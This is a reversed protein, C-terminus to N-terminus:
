KAPRRVPGGGPGGGPGSGPGEQIVMDRPGFGGRQDDGSPLPADLDALVVKEGAALGQTIETRLPGVAGTEVQRQATTTGSFVTVTAPTGARVASTPVTLVDAATAVVVAVGAGGGAPLAGGPDDVTVTVPYATQDASDDPLTGVRTVAGTVGKTAGTATVTATQGVEIEDIREVPVTTEVVAAGSGILVVVPDGASVADGAAAAVSAVTGSIPATLTAKRLDHRASVLDAEAGDIAAQDEAITAATPTDGAGGTGGDAKDDAKDDGSDPASEPEARPTDEESKDSGTGAAALTAALEGIRKQLADQAKAVADQAAMAAALARTCADGPDDAAEDDQTSPEAPPPACAKAQASLAAKAAALAKGAATQAVRVAQQQKALEGGAGGSSRRDSAPETTGEASDANSSNASDSVADAQRQQDTALTAKANALDAEARDVAAQLAATDLAGLRQGARVEQGARASLSALTGGTGFSVDARHVYDVTGNASVTEAVDGVAAAALRYHSAPDDDAFAVAGISAGIGVVAAGAVWRLVRM